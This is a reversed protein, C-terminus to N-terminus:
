VAKLTTVPDAQSQALQRVTALRFADEEANPHGISQEYDVTIAFMEAAEAPQGLREYLLGLNWAWTAEGSRFGARRHIDLAQEYCQQAYM